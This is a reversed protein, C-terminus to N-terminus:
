SKQLVARLLFWYIYTEGLMNLGAAAITKFEKFSLTKIIENISLKDIFATGM